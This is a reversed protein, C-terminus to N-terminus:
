ATRGLRLNGRNKPKKANIVAIHGSPATYSESTNVGAFVYDGIVSVATPEGDLTLFGNATTSGDDALGIFGIGGAPSDSYVLWSGDESAAIIESSTEEAEPANQAVAFSNVRDFYPNAMAAVAGLSVSSLAALSITKFLSM